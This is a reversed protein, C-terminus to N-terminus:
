VVFNILRSVNQRAAEVITGSLMYESSVLPLLLLTLKPFGMFVNVDELM